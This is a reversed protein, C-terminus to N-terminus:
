RTGDIPGNHKDLLAEAWSLLEEASYVSSKALKRLEMMLSERTLPQGEFRLPAEGLWRVECTVSGPGCEVTVAPAGEALMPGVWGPVASAGSAWRRITRRDVARGRGALYRDLAAQWDRGWAARCTEALQEPTM